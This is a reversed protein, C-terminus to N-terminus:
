NEKSLIIQDLIKNIEELDTEALLGTAASVACQARFQEIDAQTLKQQSLLEALGVVGNQLESILAVQGGYIGHHGGLNPMNATTMSHIRAHLDRILQQNM